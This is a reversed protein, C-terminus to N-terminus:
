WMNIACVALHDNARATWTVDHTVIYGTIVVTQCFGLGGGCLNLGGVSPFKTKLSVLSVASVRLQKATLVM